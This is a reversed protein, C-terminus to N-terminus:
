INGNLAETLKEFTIAVIDGEIIIVNRKFSTSSLRRGYVYLVGEVTNLVMEGEGYSLIKKVGCLEIRYKGRLEALFGRCLLSADVDLSKNIKELFGAKDKKKNKM